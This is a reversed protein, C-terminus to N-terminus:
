QWKQKLTNFMGGCDKERWFFTVFAEMNECFQKQKKIINGSALILKYGKKSLFHWFWNFDGFGFRTCFM